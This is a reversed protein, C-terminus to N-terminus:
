PGFCLEPNFDCVSICTCGDITEACDPGVELRGCSPCCVNTEIPCSVSQSTPQQCCIEAMDICFAGCPKLNEPCNPVPCSFIDQACGNIPCCEYSPLDCLDQENGDRPCRKEMVEVIISSIGGCFFSENGKTRLNAVIFDGDVLVIGSAELVISSEEELLRYIQGDNTQRLWACTLSSNIFEIDVVGSVQIIREEDGGGGCGGINLYAVSILIIIVLLKVAIQKYIM